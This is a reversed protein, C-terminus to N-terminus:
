EQELSSEERRWNGSKEWREELLGRISGFWSDRMWVGVVAVYDRIEMGCGDKHRFM